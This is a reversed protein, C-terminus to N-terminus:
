RPRASQAPWRRLDTARFTWDPTRLPRGPHLRFWPTAGASEPNRLIHVSQAPMFSQALMFVIEGSNPHRAVDVVIVAHGPSGAQVFLDGARLDRPRVATTERRVSITGAYTFVTRLYGGFSARGTGSPARRVWRVRNGAIRPRWGDAWRDFRALDGSTFQFAISSYRRRGYLYEARLRIAADACQQLDRRGVDIDIVALQGTQNARAAGNHLRVKSGPPRLPLGRLWHAFSAPSVPVRVFGSPPAFRDALRQAAEAHRWPYPAAASPAAGALLALAGLGIPAWTRKM